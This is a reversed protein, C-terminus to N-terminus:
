TNIGNIYKFRNFMYKYYANLSTKTINIAEKCCYARNTNKCFVFIYIFMYSAANLGGKRRYKRM